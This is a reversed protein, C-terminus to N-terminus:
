DCPYTASMARWFGDVASEDLNEPNSRSWSVFNRRVEQITPVPDACAWAEMVGSEVLQVYLQGTGVIFGECVGVSAPTDAECISLLDAATQLSRTEQASAPFCLAALAAAALLHRGIMWGDGWTEAALALM